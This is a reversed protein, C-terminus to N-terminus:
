PARAIAQNRLGDVLINERPLALRLLGLVDLNLAALTFLQLSRELTAIRVKNAIETYRREVDLLSASTV